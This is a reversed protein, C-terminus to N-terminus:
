ADASGPDQGARYARAPRAEVGRWAPQAAGAPAAGHPATVRVGRPESVPAHMQKVAEVMIVGGFRPWFREGAREWAQAARAVPAWRLPPVYLARAWHSTEFRRARLAKTLQARTFSRGHGFPTAEARAWLGRRNAAIIVARGGPALARWLEDLTAALADAEELLHVVVARDFAAELVPLRTEEALAAQAGGRGPWRQAGQAAPMLAAVRRAGERYREVFPTAYGLALVDHGNLHPWLACLRRAIMEHAAGGLPTAYFRSLETVDVRM